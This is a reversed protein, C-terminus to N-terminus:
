LSVLCQALALRCKEVTRYVTEPHHNHFHATADVGAISVASGNMMMLNPDFAEGAAGVFSSSPTSGTSNDVANTTVVFPQVNISMLLREAAAVQAPAGQSHEHRIRAMQQQLEQQMVQVRQVLAAVEQALQVNRRVGADLVTARLTQMARVNDRQSTDLENCFRITSVLAADCQIAQDRRPVIPAAASSSSTMGAASTAVGGVHSSSSMATNNINANNEDPHASDLALSHQALLQKKKAIRNNTQELTKRLRDM